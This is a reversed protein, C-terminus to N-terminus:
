PQYPLVFACFTNNEFLCPTLRLIKQSAWNKFNLHQYHWLPNRKYSTCRWRMFADNGFPRSISQFMLKPWDFVTSFFNYVFIMCSSRSHKHTQNNVFVNQVWLLRLLIKMPLVLSLQVFLTDDYLHPIPLFHRHLRLFFSKITHRM